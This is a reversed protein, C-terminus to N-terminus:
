QLPRDDRSLKDECLQPGICANVGHMWQKKQRFVRYRCYSLPKTVSTLFLFCLYITVVDSTSPTDRRCLTSVWFICQYSSQNNKWKSFSALHDSITCKSMATLSWWYRHIAAAEPYIPLPYPPLHLAAATKLLTYIPTCRWNATLQCHFNQDSPLTKKKHESKPDADLSRIKIDHLVLVFLLLLISISTSISGWCCCCGLLNIDNSTSFSPPICKVM